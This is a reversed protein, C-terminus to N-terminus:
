DSQLENVEEEPAECARPLRLQPQLSFMALMAVEQRMQDKAAPLPYLELAASSPKESRLRPEICDWFGPATPLRGHSFLQANSSLSPMSPKIYSELCGPFHGHRVSLPARTLRILQLTLQLSFQQLDARLNIHLGGYENSM